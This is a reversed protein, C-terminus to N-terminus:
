SALESAARDVILLAAELHHPGDPTQLVAPDGDVEYTDGNWVIRDTANIGLENTIFLLRTVTTDRGNVLETTTRQEIYAPVDDTDTRAADSWDSVINNYEDITEGPQQWTVRLPLARLPIM